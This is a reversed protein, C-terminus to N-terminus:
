AAGSGCNVAHALASMFASRMTPHSSAWPPAHCLDCQWYWEGTHGSKYVSRGSYRKGSWRILTM